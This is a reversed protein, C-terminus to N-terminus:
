ASSYLHGQSLSNKWVTTPLVATTVVLLSPIQKELFKLIKKLLDRRNIAFQMEFLYQASQFSCLCCLKYM